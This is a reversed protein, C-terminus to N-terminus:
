SSDPADGEPALRLDALAGDRSWYLVLRTVSGDRIHFVNAGAPQTQALELGSAKGQGSWRALVFVREDDLERCESIEVRVSEWASLFDRWQRGMDALGASGPAPGDAFVVEMEPHAWVTSSFDGREWGAYISHVLDLNASAM